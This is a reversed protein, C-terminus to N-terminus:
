WAVETTEPRSEAEPDPGYVLAIHAPDEMPPLSEPGSHPCNQCTV